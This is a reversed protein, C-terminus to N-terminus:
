QMICYRSRTYVLNTGVSGSANEFACIFFFTKLLMKINIKFEIAVIENM